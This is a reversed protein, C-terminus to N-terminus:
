PKVGFGRPLRGDIAAKVLAPCLFALSITRRIWRETKGERAALSEITQNPSTTLEDLWRHADRLADTLIARAETRMPRTASPRDGEGQIIERRRHPSPPTWPIILIRNQDDSAMGEALEIEITTRSMVVREIAARLTVAYDTPSITPSDTSAGRCSAKPQQLEHWGYRNTASSAARATEAVRAEIELASVRAISGAEQKGGQLAAQSVYYRWRRGGKAARSPSMRNGLDDFLKGALLADSNQCNGATRRAHAALLLQVRDWTEQDVIPDHLGDHAQGKHTLRGRYIPNSLIKYLHGRSLLAGGTTKGTGDTRLPSRTDEHDLIAKARVVSGIELYRWYLDRM